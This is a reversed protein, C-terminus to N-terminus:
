TGSLLRRVCTMSWAFAVSSPTSDTASMQQVRMGICLEPGSSGGGSPGERSLHFGKPIWINVTTPFSNFVEYQKRIYGRANAPGLAISKFATPSDALGVVIEVVVLQEAPKRTSSNAIWLGGAIQLRRLEQSSTQSGVLTAGTSEPRSPSTIALSGADQIRSYLSTGQGRYLRYNGPKRRRSRYRNM